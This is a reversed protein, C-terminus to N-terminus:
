LTTTRGANNKYMITIELYSLCSGWPHVLSNPEGAATTFWSNPEGAHNTFWSDKAVAKTFVHKTRWTLDPYGQAAEM